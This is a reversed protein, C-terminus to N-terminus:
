AGTLSFTMSSSVLQPGTVPMSCELSVASALSMWSKMGPTCLNRMSPEPVSATMAAIRAARAKVPLAFMM